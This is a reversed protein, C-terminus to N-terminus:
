YDLEAYAEALRAHALAFNDNDQILQQLMRSARFFVGRHMEEVADDFLRQAATSPRHSKKRAQWLFVTGAILIFIATLAILLRKSFKTTGTSIVEHSGHTSPESTETTMPTKRQSPLTDALEKTDGGLAAMDALMDETSQYRDEPKKALSKLAIHDLEPSVQSNLNSPAPPDDRIVKASIENPSSGSFAPQGAICEYLVSGLSFLDSRQDVPLGLAQEPSFYMPTGVIMGERTQTALKRLQEPDCQDSQDGNIQKALGFDLVKVIGRDTIAINSPKIDRHVIGRQHAESLAEAVQKIIKLAESITLAGSGVLESLTQGEVLEMVIYPKGDETKGYDYITAIHQHSLKSAARGERLFRNLFAYDDPKYKATKIAVRRGLDIDEALYVVGMGGEGLKSIVRYHSITQGVVM